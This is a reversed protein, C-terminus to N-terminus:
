PPKAAITTQVATLGASFASLQNAASAIFLSTMALFTAVLAAILGLNWNRLSERTPLAAVEARTTLLELKAEIRTVVAEITQSRREVLTVAEENKDLRYAMIDPPIPPQGGGGPGGPVISLVAPGRDTGETM